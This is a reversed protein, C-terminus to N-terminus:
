SLPRGSHLPRSDARVDYSTGKGAAEAVLLPMQFKGVKNVFCRPQSVVRLGGELRQIVSEVATRALDDDRM